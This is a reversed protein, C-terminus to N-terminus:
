RFGDLVSFKSSEVLIEIVKMGYVWYKGWMIECVVTITISNFVKLVKLDLAYLTQITEKIASLEAFLTTM